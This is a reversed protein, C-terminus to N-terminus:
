NVDLRCRKQVQGSYENKAPAFTSCLLAMLIKAMYPFFLNTNLKLAFSCLLCHQIFSLNSVTCVTHVYM